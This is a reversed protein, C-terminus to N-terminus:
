ERAVRASSHARACTGMRVPGDRMGVDSVLAQKCQGYVGLQARSKTLAACYVVRTGCVCACVTCCACASVCRPGLSFWPGRLRRCRLSGSRVCARRARSARLLTFRTGM